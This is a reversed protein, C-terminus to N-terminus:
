KFTLTNLRKLTSQNECVVTYLWHFPQWKEYNSYICDWSFFVLARRFGTSFFLFPKQESCIAHEWLARVAPIWGRAQCHGHSCSFASILSQKQNSQSTRSAGSSPTPWNRSHCYFHANFGDITVRLGCFGSSEKMNQQGGRVFM